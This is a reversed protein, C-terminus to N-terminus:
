NRGLKIAWYPFVGNRKPVGAQLTAVHFIAGWGDLGIRHATFPRRPHFCIM